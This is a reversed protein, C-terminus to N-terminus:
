TFIPVYVQDQDQDLTAAHADRLHVHLIVIVASNFIALISGPTWSEHAMNPTLMIPARNEGSNQLFYPMANLQPIRGQIALYQTALHRTALRNYLQATSLIHRNDIAHQLQQVLADTFGSPSYETTRDFASAAILEKRYGIGIGPAVCCDLLILVDAPSPDIIQARVEQFGGQDGNGIYYFIALDGEKLGSLLRGLNFSITADPNPDQMQIVLLEVDYGYSQQFLDRVRRGRTKNYPRTTAEYYNRCADAMTAQFEAVGTSARWTNYPHTPTFAM